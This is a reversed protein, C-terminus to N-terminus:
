FDFARHVREAAGVRVRRTMWPKRGHRNNSEPSQCQKDQQWTAQRVTEDYGRVQLPTTPGLSLKSFDTEPESFLLGPTWEVDNKEM